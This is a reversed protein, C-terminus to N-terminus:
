DLASVGALVVAVVASGVARTVLDSGEGGGDLVTAQRPSGQAPGARSRGRPPANLRVHSAANTKPMPPPPALSRM